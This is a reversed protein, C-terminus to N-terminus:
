RSEDDYWESEEQELWEEYSITTDDFMGDDEIDIEIFEIEIDDILQKWSKYDELIMFSYCEHNVFREHFVTLGINNLPTHRYLVVCNGRTPPEEFILDSKM